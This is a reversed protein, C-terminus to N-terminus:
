FKGFNDFMKDFSAFAEDMKAFGAEGHKVSDRYATKEADTMPRREIYTEDGEETIKTKTWTETGSCESMNQRTSKFIQTVKSSFWM